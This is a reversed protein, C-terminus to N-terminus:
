QPTSIKLAYCHYLCVMLKPATPRSLQDPDPDSLFIVLLIEQNLFFDIILEVFVSIGM